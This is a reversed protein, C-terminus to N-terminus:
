LFLITHSPSIYVGPENPFFDDLSDVRTSAIGHSSLLSHLAQSSLGRFLRYFSPSRGPLLHKVIHAACDTRAEIRDRLVPPAAQTRFFFSRDNLAITFDIMFRAQEPTVDPYRQPVAYQLMRVQSETYHVARSVHSRYLTDVTVDYRNLRALQKLSVRVPDQVFDFGDHFRGAHYFALDRDIKFKVAAVEPMTALAHLRHLVPVLTADDGKQLGRAVPMDEYRCALTMLMQCINALLTFPDGSPLNFRITGAYLSPALSKVAYQSRMAYYLECIAPDLGLYELFMVFAFAHVASHSSDQREVDLQMNAGSTLAEALGRARMLAALEGDSMGVDAIFDDRMFAHLRSYAQPTADAFLVSYEVENAVIQQGYNQMAAYGVQAKVKVQSKLFGTFRTTRSTEGFHTDSIRKLYAPTRKELWTAVNSEVGDSVRFGDREFCHRFREFMKAARQPVLDDAPAKSTAFQRLLMNRLDERSSSSVQIEAVKDADDFGSRVDTVRQLENLDTGIKRLAVAHPSHLDIAYGHDKFSDFHTRSYVFSQIEEHTPQLRVAPADPVHEDRM